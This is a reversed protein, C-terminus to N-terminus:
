IYKLIFPKKALIPQYDTLNSANSLRRSSSPALHNAYGTYYNSMSSSTRPENDKPVSLSDKIQFNRPTTVDPLFLPTKKNGKKLSMLPNSM